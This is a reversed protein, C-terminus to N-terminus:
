WKEEHHTIHRALINYPTQNELLWLGCKISVCKEISSRLAAVNDGLCNAMAFFPTNRGPVM